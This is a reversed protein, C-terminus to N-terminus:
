LDKKLVLTRIKIKKALKILNHNILRLYKTTVEAMLARMLVILGKVKLIRKKLYFCMKVIEQPITGIQFVYKLLLKKKM